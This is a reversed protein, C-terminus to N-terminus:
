GRPMGGGQPPGWDAEGAARGAALSGFIQWFSVAHIKKDRPDLIAVYGGRLSSPALGKGESGRRSGRRQSKARPPPLLHRALSAPRVSRKPPRHSARREGPAKGPNRRADRRSGGLRPAAQHRNRLAPAEAAEGTEQLWATAVGAPRSSRGPTRARGRTCPRPTTLCRPDAWRPVRLTNTNTNKDSVGGGLVEQPRDGPQATVVQRRRSQPAGSRGGGRLRRHARRM